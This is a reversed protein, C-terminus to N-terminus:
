LIAPEETALWGRLAVVRHGIILQEHGGDNEAEDVDAGAVAV